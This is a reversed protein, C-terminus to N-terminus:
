STCAHRVGDGHPAGVKDYSRSRPMVSTRGIGISTITQPEGILKRWAECAADIIADYTEFVTNSLLQLASVALHERSLEAQPRAVSPIDAHHEQAHRSPKIAQHRCLTVRAGRWRGSSPLHGRVSLRQRLAPRRTPSTADCAQGM